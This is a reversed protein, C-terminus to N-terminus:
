AWAQSAGSERAPQQGIRFTGGPPRRGRLLSRTATAAVAANCGHKAGHPQIASRPGKRSGQGLGEVPDPRAALPQNRKLHARRIRGPCAKRVVRCVSKSLVGNVAHSLFLPAFRGNRFSMITLLHTASRDLSQTHDFATNMLEVNCELPSCATM